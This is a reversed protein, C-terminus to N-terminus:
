EYYGAYDFLIPKNNLSGLNNNHLDNIKVASLFNMLEAFLDVGYNAIFSDIWERSRIGITDKEKLANKLVKNEIDSLIKRQGKVGEASEVRKQLYIPYGSLTECIFRTEAFFDELGAEKALIFRDEELECYDWKGWEVDPFLNKNAIDIHKGECFEINFPVKCEDCVGCLPIKIVYEELTDIVLKSAGARYEVRLFDSYKDPNDFALENLYDLLPNDCTDANEWDMKTLDIDCDAIQQLLLNTVSKM